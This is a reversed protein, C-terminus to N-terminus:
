LLYAELVLVGDEHRVGIVRYRAGRRLLVQPEGPLDDLGELAAPMLPRAGAPVTLELVTGAAAAAARDTTLELLGPDRVEKRALKDAQEILEKPLQVPAYLLLDDDTAPVAGWLGDLIKVAARTELSADDKKAGSRLHQNVEGLGQEVLWRLAADQEPRLELKEVQGALVGRASAGSEPRPLDIKGAGFARMWRVRAKLNKRVRERMEADAFPVADVLADIAPGNLRKGIERAQERMGEESLAMTGFAQGHPGRMTWVETPVPGYPKGGGQARLEFTGGQDIRVPTSWDGKEGVWLVNDDSLGVVDWNAVLADAMFGRGLEVSPQTIRRTEGDLTPYALATVVKGPGAEVEEVASPVEEAVVTWPKWKGTDFLSPWSGHGHAGKGPKHAKVKPEPPLEVQRTGAPAVPLGLAAYVRNALLETAVRDLNGRYTKILWRHGDKDFAWRAGNSGGAGKGLKLEVGDYNPVLTGGAGPVGPDGTGPSRLAKSVTDPHQAVLAKAVLGSRIVTVENEGPAGMLNSLGGLVYFDTGPTGLAESFPIHSNPVIRADPNTVVSTQAGDPETTYALIAQGADDDSTRRYLSAHDKFRMDAVRRLHDAQDRRAQAAWDNVGDYEAATAEEEDAQARMADRRDDRGAWWSRALRTELMIQDLLVRGVPDGPRTLRDAIEQRANQQAQGGHSWGDLLWGAREVADDSHGRLRFWETRQDRYFSGITPSSLRRATDLGKRLLEEDAGTGPSRQAPRSVTVASIPAYALGRDADYWGGAKEAGWEATEPDEPYYAVWGDTGVSSVNGTDAIGGGPHAVSIDDGTKPGTGPSKAARHVVRAHVHIFGAEDVDSVDTVLLATKRPLVVEGYDVYAAKDGPNLEIRFLVKRGHVAAEAAANREDMPMRGWDPHAAIYRDVARSFAYNIATRPELGSAQFAPDVLVTGPVLRELFAPDDVISSRYVDIPRAITAEEIMRDIPASWGGVAKGDRLKQQMRLTKEDDVVFLDRAKQGAESYGLMGWDNVMPQGNELQFSDRVFQLGAERDATSMEDARAWLRVAEPNKSVPHGYVSLDPDLERARARLADMEAHRFSPYPVAARTGPSAMVDDAMPQTALFEWVAKLARDRQEPTLKHKDPPVWQAEAQRPVAVVEDGHTRLLAFRESVSLLTGTLPSGDADKAVVEDGARPGDAAGTFTLPPAAHVVRVDELVPFRLMGDDTWLRVTPQEGFAALGVDEVYGKAGDRLSVLAGPAVPVGDVDLYDRRAPVEGVNGALVPVHPGVPPAAFVEAVRAHGDKVGRAELLRALRDARAESSPTRFKLEFLLGRREAFPVGAEDLLQGLAGREGLYVGAVKEVHPNRLAYGLIDWRGLERLKEQALVHATEETLAEELDLHWREGFFDAEPLAGIGHGLEHYTTKVAEYALALENDALPVGADHRAKLTNLADRLQPGIVITGDFYRTGAMDFEDPDIDVSRNEAHDDYRQAAEDGLALAAERFADWGDVLATRSAERPAERKGPEWRVAGVTRDRDHVLEAVSGTRPDVWHAVTGGEPTAVVSTLRMGARALAAAAEPGDGEMVPPADATLLGLAQEARNTAVDRRKERDEAIRAALEEGDLAVPLDPDVVDPALNKEATSVLLGDRYINTGGAPSFYTTDGVRRMWSSQEPVEFTQGAVNVVRHRDRRGVPTDPPGATLASLARRAESRLGPVGGRLPRFQGGKVVGKGWRLLHREGRAEQLYLALDGRTVQAEQLLGYREVLLAARREADEPDPVMDVTMWGAAIAEDLSFLRCACGYHTPPHVKDLVSWPWFKFGFAVCDATHEKVDPSLWWFAGEPSLEKLIEREVAAVARTLRARSHAEAYRKERELIRTVLLRRQEADAVRFAGPLDRELRNRQNAVFRAERSMEERAIRDTEAEPRDPFQSRLARRLALYDRTRRAATWLLLGEIM